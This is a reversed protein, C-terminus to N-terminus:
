EKAIKVGKSITVLLLVEIITMLLPRHWSLTLWTSTRDTFEAANSLEKFQFLQSAFWASVISIYLYGIFSILVLRRRAEIKWNSILACLMSIFTLAHLPIWFKRPEDPIGGLAKNLAEVSNFMDPIWFLHQFIGVGTVFGLTLTCVILAPTALKRKM